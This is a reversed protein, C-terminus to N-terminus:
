SSASDKAAMGEGFLLGVLGGFLVEAMHLMTVAGDHWQMSHAGLAAGLLLLLLAFGFAVRAVILRFTGPTPTGGPGFGRSEPDRRFFIM